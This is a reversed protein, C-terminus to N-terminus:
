NKRELKRRVYAKLDALEREMSEFKCILHRLASYAVYTVGQENLVYRSTKDDIHHEAVLDRFYPKDMIEQAIHGLKTQDPQSNYKFTESPQSKMAEYALSHDMPSITNKSRIDCMINIEGYLM